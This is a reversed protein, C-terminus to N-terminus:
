ETRQLTPAKSAAEVEDLEECQWRLDAITTELSKAEDELGESSLTDAIATLRKIETQINHRMTSPTM